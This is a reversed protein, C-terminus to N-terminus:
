LRVLQTSLIAPIGPTAGRERLANLEGRLEKVTAELEAERRVEDLDPAGNQDSVEMTKPAAVQPREAPPDRVVGVLQGNTDFIYGQADTSLDDRGFWPSSEREDYFPTLKAAAPGGPSSSEIVVNIGAQVSLPGGDKGSLEMIQKESPYDRPWRRTLILAPNVDLVLAHVTRQAEANAKQIKHYFNVYESQLGDETEAAGRAMWSHFSRESLQVLRACTGYPLGKRIEVCLRETLEKTLKSTVFPQGPKLKRKRGAIRRDHSSGRRKAADEAVGKVAKVPTAKVRKRIKRTAM